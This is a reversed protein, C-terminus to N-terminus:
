KKSKPKIIEDVICFALSEKANFWKDRECIKSIEEFSHKTKEAITNYLNERLILMQHLNIEGDISTGSFGGSVTHIMSRARDFIKRHNGYIAIVAAMSAAMSIITTNVPSSIYDMASLIGNGADVSGGGSAILIEIPKESDISDLYLLQSVIVNGVHQDIESGLFLIRDCMLRSFVDLQTINMQREEIIYPNIYSSKVIGSKEIHKGYQDLILPSVKHDKAFLQYDKKIDM